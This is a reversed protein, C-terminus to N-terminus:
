GSDHRSQPGDSDPAEEKAARIDIVKSSVGENGGPLQQNPHNGRSAEAEGNGSGGRPALARPNRGPDAGRIQDKGIQRSNLEPRLCTLQDPRAVESKRYLTDHRSVLM